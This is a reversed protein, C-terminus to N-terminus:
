RHDTILHNIGHEVEVGTIAHSYKYKHVVPNFVSSRM